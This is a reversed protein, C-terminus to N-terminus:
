RSCPAEKLDTTIDPRVNRPGDPRVDYVGGYLRALALALPRDCKAALPGPLHMEMFPKRAGATAYVQIVM